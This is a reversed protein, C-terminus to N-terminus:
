DNLIDAMSSTRPIDAQSRDIRKTKRPKGKPKLARQILYNLGLSLTTIAALKGIQVLSISQSETM